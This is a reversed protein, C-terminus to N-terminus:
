RTCRSELRCRRAVLLATIAPSLSSDSSDRTFPRTISTARVTTTRDANPAAITEASQNTDILALVTARDLRLSWVDDPAEGAPLLASLAALGVIGYLVPLNSEREDIGVWRWRGIELLTDGDTREHAFASALMAAPLATQLLIRGADRREIAVLAHRAYLVALGPGWLTARPNLRVLTRLAPAVGVLRGQERRLLFMGLGYLGEVDSGLAQGLERQRELLAEALGLDRQRGM